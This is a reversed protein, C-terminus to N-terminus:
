LGRPPASLTFYGAVARRAPEYRGAPAAPDYSVEAKFACPPTRALGHERWGRFSTAFDEVSLPVGLAGGPLAQAKELESAHRGRAVTIRGRADITTTAVVMEVGAANRCPANGPGRGAQRECAGVKADCAHLDNKLRDYTGRVADLQASPGQAHRPDVDFISILTKWTDPTVWGREGPDGEMADAGILILTFVFVVQVLLDILTTLAIDRHRAGRPSVSV